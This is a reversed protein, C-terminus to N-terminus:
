ELECNECAWNNNTNNYYITVDGADCIDCTGESPAYFGWENAQADAIEAEWGVETLAGVIGDWLTDDIVRIDFVTLWDAFEGYVNREVITYHKVTIRVGDAPYPRIEVTWDGDATTYTSM